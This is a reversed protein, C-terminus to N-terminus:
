VRKKVKKEDVPEPAVVAASESSDRIVSGADEEVFPVADKYLHVFLRYHQEDLDLVDGGNV